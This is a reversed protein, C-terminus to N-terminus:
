RRGKVASIAIGYISVNNTKFPGIVRRPNGGAPYAWLGVELLTGSQGVFRKGGIWTQIYPWHGSYDNQWGQIRTTGAVKLSSQSLRLRYVNGTSPNSLTIYKGDWQVSGFADFKSGLTFNVFSSSGEPLEAFVNTSGTGDFFLDGRDDYGCLGYTYIEPDRYWQVPGQAGPFIAVEGAGSGENTVALNGTTPDVSCGLGLDGNNLTRIPESGGHAYELVQYGSPVYVDGAQDTCIDNASLSLIGTLKGAPYSWVYMNEGTTMYLLDESKAEPLMWSRIPATDAQDKPTSQPLASCGALFAACVVLGSALDGVSISKM